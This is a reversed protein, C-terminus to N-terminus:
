RRCYVFSRLAPRPRPRACIYVSPKLVRSLLCGLRRKSSGTERRARVGPAGLFVSARSVGTADLCIELSGLLEYLITGGTRAVRGEISGGSPLRSGGTVVSKWGPHRDMVHKPWDQVEKPLIIRSGASTAFLQLNSNAVSRVSHMIKPRNGDARKRRAETAEYPSPDAPPNSPVRYQFHKAIFCACSSIVDSIDLRIRHIFQRERERYMYLFLFSPLFTAHPFYQLISIFINSEALSFGRFIRVQKNM